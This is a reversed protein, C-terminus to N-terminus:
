TGTCRGVRVPLLLVRERRTYGGRRRLRRASRSVHLSARRRGHATAVSWRLVGCVREARLQEHVDGSGLRPLKCSRGFHLTHRQGVFFRMHRIRTRGHMRRSGRREFKGALSLRSPCRKGRERDRRAHRQRPPRATAALRLPAIPETPRPRAPPSCALSLARAQTLPLAQRTRSRIPAVTM